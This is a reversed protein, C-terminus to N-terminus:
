KEHCDSHGFFRVKGMGIMLLVGWAFKRSWSTKHSFLYRLFKANGTYVSPKQAVKRKILMIKFIDIIKIAM